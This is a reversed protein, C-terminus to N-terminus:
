EVAEARTMQMALDNMDADAGPPPVIRGRRGPKLRMARRLGRTLKERVRAGESEPDSLYVLEDCWDPPLFGGDDAMDPQDHVPKGDPGALARGHMNGLNIFVWYATDPEFAHCLVSLTTEIGEGGVIRRPHPPTYLRIACGKQSGQVRKTARADGKPTPPLVLRGKPQVLDIWTQHAGAFDGLPDQIGAILTPGAALTIKDRGTKETWPHSPAFRLCALAGPAHALIKLADIGRLALYDFVPHGDGWIVRETGRWIRRGEDKAWKRYREQSEAREKEQRERERALRAAREPDPPTDAKRGTIMECAEVFGVNETQMVLDIVSKGGRVGCSDGKRCLFKNFGTHISFRDTGGCVPCPGSRDVGRSLPWNKREAWKICSTRLAEDRLAALHQPLSM